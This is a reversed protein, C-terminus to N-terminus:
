QDQNLSNLEALFGHAMVRGADYYEAIKEELALDNEIMALAVKEIDSETPNGGEKRIWEEAASAYKAVLEVRENQMEREQEVQSLKMFNEYLSM